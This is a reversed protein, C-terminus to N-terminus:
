NIIDIFESPLLDSNEWVQLYLWKRAYSQDSWIHNLYMWVKLSNSHTYKTYTLGNRSRASFDIMMMLRFVKKKVFVIIM